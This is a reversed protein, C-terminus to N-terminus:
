VAQDQRTAAKGLPQAIIRVLGLLLAVGTAIAMIPFSSVITTASILTGKGALLRFTGFVLVAMVLPAQVMATFISKRKVLLTALVIGAIFITGFVTGIAYSDGQRGAVIGAAGFALAILIAAWSPVGRVSLLVSADAPRM